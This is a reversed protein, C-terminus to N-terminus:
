GICTNSAAANGGIKMPYKGNAYVALVRPPQRHMSLLKLKKRTKIPSMETM